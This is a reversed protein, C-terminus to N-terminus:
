REIGDTRNIGNLGLVRAARQANGSQRQNAGEERSQIESKKKATKVKDGTGNDKM